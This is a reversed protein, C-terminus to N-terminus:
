HLQLYFIQEPVNPPKISLSWLFTKLNGFLVADDGHLFADIRHNLVLNLQEIRFQETFQKFM